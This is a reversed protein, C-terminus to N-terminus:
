LGVLGADPAIVPLDGAEGLFLLCETGCSVEGTTESLLTSFLLSLCWIDQEPMQICTHLHVCRCVETFRSFINVIFCLYLYISIYVSLPSLDYMCVYMCVYKFLYCVDCLMTLQAKLWVNNRKDLIVKRTWKELDLVIEVKDSFLKWFGNMKEKIEKAKCYNSRKLHINMWGM